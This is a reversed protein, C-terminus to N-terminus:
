FYVFVKKLIFLHRFFFYFSDSFALLLKNIEEVLLYLIQFDLYLGLKGSFGCCHQFFLGFGLMSNSIICNIGQSFPYIFYVKLCCFVNITELVCYFLHFSLHFM